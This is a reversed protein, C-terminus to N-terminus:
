WSSPTLHIKLIALQPAPTQRASSIPSPLVRCVRAHINLRFSLPACITTAGADTTPLQLISAFRKVGESLTTISFSNAISALPLAIAPSPDPSRSTSVYPSRTLSHSASAPLSQALTHRSSAWVILFRSVLDEAAAIRRFDAQLIM